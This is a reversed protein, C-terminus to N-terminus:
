RKFRGLINTIDVKDPVTKTDQTSIKSSLSKLKEADLTNEAELLKQKEDLEDAREKISDIKDNIPSLGSFIMFVNNPLKNDENAYIHKFAHIADGMFDKVEPIDDNFGDMLKQSINVIVGSGICRKDRQAEVHSNKKIDEIIMKEISTNEVDKEKIGEVRSVIIRGPFSILRLADKSDISDYRTNQNYFGRMVDIDSVIENNVSNLIVPSSMGAYADNDYLMYTQSGMVNYLEELYQLTNVHSSLADSYVPLIGVLITKVDPFAENIVACMSPATGSGTGGGTSSVVYVVDLDMIMSQIDKDGLLKGISSSLYEKATDRDKGSGNENKSTILKKPISDPVNELDSDSSNIALVPISLRQNALVAVQNGANGIGIIGVRLM